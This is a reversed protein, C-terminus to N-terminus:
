KEKYKKFGVEAMSYGTDYKMSVKMATLCLDLWKATQVKVYKKAVGYSDIETIDDVTIQSAKGNFKKANLTGESFFSGEEKVFYELKNGKKLVIRAYCNDDTYTLAIKTSSLREMGAAATDGFYPLIYIYNGSKNISGNKKIYKAVGKIAKEQSTKAEVNQPVGLFPVCLVNSVMMIAILLVSLAKLQKKM